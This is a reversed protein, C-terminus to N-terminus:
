NGSIDMLVKGAAWAKEIEAEKAEYQRPSMKAIESETFTYNGKNSPPTAGRVRVDDIASSRNSKSPEKDQTAPGIGKEYKYDAIVRSAKRWDTDNDYLAARDAESQQELWEHFEPDHRITTFFDPHRESLAKQAEQKNLELERSEIQKMKSDLESTAASAQRRAIGMVIKAVDPYKKIWAEIDEDSTPLEMRNSVSSELKQELDNIRRTLEAEKAQSHRRLDGYRKFYTKEEQTADPPLEGIETELELEEDELMFNRQFKAM